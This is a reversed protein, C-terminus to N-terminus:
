GARLTRWAGCGCGPHALWTRRRVQWGPLAVELTGEVVAPDGGDLHALAQMAGLTATMSALVLDCPEAVGRRPTALQAALTPWAPDRDCRHLDACRLCSSTGPRVMPGVVSTTERIGVLLHTVGAAHLAPLLDSGRPPMDTLIVLDPYRTAPLPTTDVEPACRRLVDAAAEARPRHQDSPRLGGPACDGLRGPASDVMVVRGVGSAALLAALPTGIRGAGHVVVASQHRRTLIQSATDGPHILALSSHDPALREAVEPGGLSSLAVPYGDVVLRHRRLGALLRTVVAVDLGSAAADALIEAESRTGDLDRLLRATGSDISGIMVARDPDLGIQITSGDRWLARAAPNLRPRTDNNM